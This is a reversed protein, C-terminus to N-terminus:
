KPLGSLEHVPIVHNEKNLCMSIYDVYFIRHRRRM